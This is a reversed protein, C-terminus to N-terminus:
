YCFKKLYFIVQKPKDELWFAEHEIRRMSKDKSLFISKEISILKNSPLSMQAIPIGIPKMGNCQQAM